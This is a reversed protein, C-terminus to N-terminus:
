RLALPSPPRIDVDFVRLGLKRHDRSGEREAPVFTQDTEISVAGAADALADAPLAVTMMQDRGVIFSGLTRVGARVQVRSPRDFYRLPSEVRFVLELPAAAGTVRLTARESTWHWVGLTPDYEAEHWGKEFGWVATGITQVDFQEIATPLPASGIAPSSSVTLRALPGDGAFADAPVDFVKLFFGAAADWRQILRGDLSLEFRAAPGGDAAFNRGGILIRAPQSRRRVWATIPALDPGRGMLRAMGATEPTLAWGEEAFWGPARLRLWEVNEPRMGGVQSLSNFDATFRVVDRRSAPDILALDSRRPDALFWLPQTNGERWYQALELWERRPPSALQPGVPVTEAQLPRRFAQHLGLAGPRVVAAEAHM